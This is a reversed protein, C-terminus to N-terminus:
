SARPPDSNNPVLKVVDARRKLRRRKRPTPPSYDLICSILYRKLDDDIEKLAIVRAIAALDQPQQQTPQVTFRETCGFTKAALIRTAQRRAEDPSLVATPGLTVRHQSGGRLEYQVIWRRSGKSRLRLGFGPLDDDFYVRDAKGCAAFDREIATLNAQILKM